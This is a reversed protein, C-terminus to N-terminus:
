ALKIGADMSGVKPACVIDIISIEAIFGFRITTKENNTKGVIKAQKYGKEPSQYKCYGRYERLSLDLEMSM